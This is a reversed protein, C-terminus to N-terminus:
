NGLCDGCTAFYILIIVYLAGLVALTVLVARAAGSMGSHPDIELRRARDALDRLEGDSLAFLTGNVADPKLHVTAAARRATPGSLFSRLTAIDGARQQSAERLRIDMVHRSVVHDTCPAPTACNLLMVAMLGATLIKMPREARSEV